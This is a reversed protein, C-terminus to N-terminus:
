QHSHQHSGNIRSIIWSCRVQCRESLFPTLSTQEKICALFARVTTAFPVNLLNCLTKNFLVSVGLREGERVIAGNIQDIETKVGRMVDVLVTTTITFSMLLSSRIQTDESRKGLMSSLNEGTARAVEMVKEVPKEYPLKIGPSNAFEHHYLKSIFFM